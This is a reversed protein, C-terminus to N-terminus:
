HSLKLGFEKAVARLPGWDHSNNSKDWLKQLRERIVEDPEDIREVTIRFKRVSVIGNFCNPESQKLAHLAWEGPYKFTEFSIPFEDKKKKRKSM